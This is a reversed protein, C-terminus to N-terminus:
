ADAKGDLHACAAHLHAGDGLEPDLLMVDLGAKMACVDHAWGRHLHVAGPLTTNVPKGCCRCGFEPSPPPCHKLYYRLAVKVQQNISRGGAQAREEVEKFLVDSLRMHLQRGRSEYEPM